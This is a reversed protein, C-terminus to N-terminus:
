ARRNKYLDEYEDVMRKIEARVWDGIHLGLFFGLLVFTIYLVISWM